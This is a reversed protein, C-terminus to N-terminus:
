RIKSGAPMDKVELLELREGRVASLLMGRSEIGRIVAPKLNAILIVNKGVLDEPRYHAAIGALVTREEDGALLRFQLLKDAKPVKECALVTAVRLDLRAFDEISIEPM